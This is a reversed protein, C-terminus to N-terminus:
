SKDSSINDCARLESQVLAYWYSAPPIYAIPSGILKHHAERYSTYAAHAFEVARGETEVYDTIEALLEKARKLDPSENSEVIWDLEELAAKAQKPTIHNYTGATAM